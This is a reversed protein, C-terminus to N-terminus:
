RGTDSMIMQTMIQRGARAGLEGKANSGPTRLEMVFFGCM